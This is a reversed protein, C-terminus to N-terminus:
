EISWEWINRQSDEKGVNSIYIGVMGKLFALSGKSETDLYTFGEYITTQNKTMRGVDEANWTVSQGDSSTMVGNGKGVILKNPYMTDIFTGRTVVSVNGNILANEVFSVENQALGTVNLSKVSTITGNVSQYFPDKAIMTNGIKISQESDAHIPPFVFSISLGLAIALISFITLTIQM